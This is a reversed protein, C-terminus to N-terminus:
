APVSWCQWTPRSNNTNRRSSPIWRPLRPMAAGSGTCPISFSGKGNAGTGYFFFLVHETTVGTMCYGAVRQLYGQLEKDKATVKDLFKTWRPIPCREDAAAAAIKTNYDERRHPRALGTKLDLTM